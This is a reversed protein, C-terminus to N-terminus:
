EIVEDASLLISQPMVLGLARATRTNFALEFKTPQEVPLTAPQAGKLIRDVFSAAREFVEKSDASVSLLGGARVTSRNISVLALRHRMALDVIAAQQVDFIAPMVVAQAGNRVMTAFASEIDSPSAILVPEIAIGATSGAQQMYFLFPGTFADQASALVAVKRLDPIVDKLLQLRRGGLEAAMNTIGTVNGGPRSLSAVLGSEVPAGAPAMVIPITKTAGMAARVAPTFHAVIVDVGAGVLGAALENSRDLKGDAYKIDFALARNGVYGLAALEKPLAEAIPHPPSGDVLLGITTAKRATQARAMTPAALVAGL